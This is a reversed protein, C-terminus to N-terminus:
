LEELHQKFQLLTSSRLFRRKLDDSNNYDDFTYRSLAKFRKLINEKEFGFKLYKKELIHFYYELNKKRDMLIIDENYQNMNNKYENFLLPLWPTKMASRGCMIAYCNSEDFLRVADQVTWIDGNGIIPISVSKVAQKIYSWNAKGHYQQAKTRGHITIAQVGLDELIKLIEFFNSDDDYGIRIKASLYGSYHERITSVVKKLADLDKLLYAGGRHGNVKKSPCGINLDLHNFGLKDILEVHEKTCSNEAALIQFCTKKSLKSNQYVEQGFHNIIKKESYIGNPPIRLFDTNYYSWDPFAENIAMRYPADTIGEMPAFILSKELIPSPM